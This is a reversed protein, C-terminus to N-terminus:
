FGYFGKIDVIITKISWTEFRSSGSKGIILFDLSFIPPCSLDLSGM